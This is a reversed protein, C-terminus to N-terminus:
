AQTKIDVIDRIFAIFQNNPSKIFYNRHRSDGLITAILGFKNKGEKKFDRFFQQEVIENSDINYSV